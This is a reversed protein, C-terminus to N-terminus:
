TGMTLQTDTNDMREQGKTKKELEKNQKEENQKM